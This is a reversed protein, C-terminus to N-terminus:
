GGLETIRERLQEATLESGVTDEDASSKDAKSGVLGRIELVTRLLSSKVAPPTDDSKMLEEAFTILETKSMAM